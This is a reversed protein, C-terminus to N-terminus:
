FFLKWWKKWSPDVKQINASSSSVEKILDQHILVEQEGPKVLLLKNRATEEVFEESEVYVLESQLSQNEQKQKALELEAEVVLDRKQWIDYISRALNNIVFFSILVTAFFLIKKM